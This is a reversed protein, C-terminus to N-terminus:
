VSLESRLRDVDELAPPELEPVPNYLVPVERDRLWSHAEKLV